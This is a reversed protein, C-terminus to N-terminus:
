STAVNCLENPSNIKPGPSAPNEEGSSGRFRFNRSERKWMKLAQIKRMRMVRAESTESFKRELIVGKERRALRIGNTYIISQFSWCVDTDGKEQGTWEHM